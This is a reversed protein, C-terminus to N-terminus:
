CPYYFEDDLAAIVAPDREERQFDRSQGKLFAALGTAEQPHLKKKVESLTMLRLETQSQKKSM